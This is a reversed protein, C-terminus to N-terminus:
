EGLHQKLRAFAIQWAKEQWLRAENWRPGEGWGFHELRVNSRDQGVSAFTVRVSTPFPEINMLDAYPVPGRWSFELQKSPEVKLLRCGLTSNQEPHDREWFLEYPGGVVPHVNALESLWLTLEHPNTWAEWLRDLPAGVETEIIIPQPGM